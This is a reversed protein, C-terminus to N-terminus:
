PRGRESSAAEEHGCAACFAEYRERSLGAGGLSAGHTDDGHWDSGGSVALGLRGALEVLEESEASTQETHFAEVGALGADALRPILDVVKYLAPHAIFPFGGSARVLSIADVVDPYSTEVYYPSKLGILRDFADAVSSAEGAEVLMRALLSRNVTGGRELMAQSSVPYGAAALNDAVALAREARKRRREEFLEEFGDFDPDVFYGLLHINRGEFATTLEVGAIVHFPYSAAFALAEKAGELTDHDTVAVAGLGAERAMDFMTQVSLVGDSATSHMHLDAYPM